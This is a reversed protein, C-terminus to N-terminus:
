HRDGASHKIIDSKGADTQTTLKLLTSNLQECTKQSLPPFLGASQQMSTM